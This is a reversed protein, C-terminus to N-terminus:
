VTLASAARGCRHDSLLSRIRGLARSYPTAVRAVGGGGGCGGGRTATTARPARATARPSPMGHAALRVFDIRPRSARRSVVARAAGAGRRSRTTARRPPM